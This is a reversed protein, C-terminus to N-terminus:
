AGEEEHALVHGFVRLHNQLPRGSSVRALISRKTVLGTSHSTSFFFRRSAFAKKAATFFSFSDSASKPFSGSMWKQSKRRCVNVTPNVVFSSAYLSAAGSNLRSFSFYAGSSFRSGFISLTPFSIPISDLQNRLNPSHVKVDIGLIIHKRIHQSHERSHLKTKKFVKVQSHPVHPIFSTTRRKYTLM